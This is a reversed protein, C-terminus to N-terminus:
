EFRPDKAEKKNTSVYGCLSSILWVLFVPILGAVLFTWLVNQSKYYTLLSPLVGLRGLLELLIALIWVSWFTFRLQFIGYITFFIGLVGSAILMSEIRGHKQFYQELGKGHPLIQALGDGLAGVILAVQM